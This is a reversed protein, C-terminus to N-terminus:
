RPLRSCRTIATTARVDVDTLGPRLRATFSETIAKQWAGDMVLSPAVGMDTSEILFRNLVKTFWLDNGVQAVVREGSSRAAIIRETLEEIRDDLDHLFREIRGSFAASAAEAEWARGELELTRSPITQDIQGALIANAGVATWREELSSGDASPTAGHEGSLADPKAHKIPSENMELAQLIQFSQLKM